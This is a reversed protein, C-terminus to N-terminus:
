GVAQRLDLTLPYEPNLALPPVTVKGRQAPQPIFREARRQAAVAPTSPLTAYIEGDPAQVHYVCGGLALQDHWTDVVDFHLPVHAAIAPHLMNLTQRARFRVGAVYEGRHGTSRLPLRRGNCLVQYRDSLSDANPSHTAIGQLKVQLRELSADVYRATRGNSVEEGLVHWPEIAHRLELVLPGHSTDLVVTGYRPFRFEFFPQFWALDFGYGLEQFEVLVQQLDQALYHPLLFRDHLTTGWRVLPRAYPQQWFRAICARILLLELLRMQAQPPMAFARFELIGLQNRPNEVPYLKDICFEARHTNGTVDILLNRLLRDVVAPPVDAEPSLSQFAVELEYLSEHRGEDVRPSQSTPGVFLGAFLYSLSPHHQWYTILSRLLDPRRLLPSDEPYTGGLTIHAGGGTSLRQGDWGYKETGLQCQAAVEYLTTTQSILAPWDAVPHINVEIVGPDPTIQFGVLGQNAAPLYGELTVPLALSTAAQAIAAVLEVFGQASGWPPIFLYIQGDRVEVTLAVQIANDPALSFPHQGTPLGPQLPLTAEQILSEPPRLSGLPLRLGIPGQGPLLRRDATEWTWRCSRWHLREGELSPLLPLVYGGPAEAEVEYAPQILDAPLGLIAVLQTILTRAQALTVPTPSAIPPAAVTPWLPMGDERWYCGLAWRPGAEGPYLKGVGNYRLSGPPAFEATLRDRLQEARRRKEAGLAETRWEPSEFDDIAVFTPEGGMMLRVQLRQLDAEVTDGLTVIAQWQAETYPSAEPTPREM